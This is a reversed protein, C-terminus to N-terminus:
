VRLTTTLLSVDASELPPRHVRGNGPTTQLHSLSLEPSGTLRVPTADNLSVSSLSSHEDTKALAASLHFAGCLKCPADLKESGSTGM